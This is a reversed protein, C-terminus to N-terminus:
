SRHETNLEWERERREDEIERGVRELIADFEAQRRAFEAYQEPTLTQGSLGSPGKAAPDDFDCVLPMHLEIELRQIDTM